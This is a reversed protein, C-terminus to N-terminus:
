LAHPNSSLLGVPPENGPVIGAAPNPPEGDVAGHCGGALPKPVLAPKPVFQGLQKAMGAPLPVAKLGMLPPRPGVAGNLAECSFQAVNLVAAALEPVLPVRLRM